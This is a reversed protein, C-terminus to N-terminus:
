VGHLIGSFGKEKRFSHAIIDQQFFSDSPPPLIFSFVRPIAWWNRAARTGSPPSHMSPVIPLPFSVAKRQWSTPGSPFTMAKSMWSSASAEM